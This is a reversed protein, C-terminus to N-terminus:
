HAQYHDYTNNAILSWPEWEEPMDLFRKPDHLDADELTRLADMLETHTDDLRVLVDRVDDKEYLQRIKENREDLPLMWWESAVLAKARSPM